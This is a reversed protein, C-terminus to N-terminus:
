ADEEDEEEESEEESEEEAEEKAKKKPKEPADKPILATGLWGLVLGAGGWAFYMWEPPSPVRLAVGKAKEITAEFIPQWKAVEDKGYVATTLAAGEDTPFVFLLRRYRLTAPNAGAVTLETVKKTSEGEIIGVRTGDARTRTEHRVDTWTVGNEALMAPMGEAIKALDAPEVSGRKNSVSLHLRPVVITEAPRMYKWAREGRERTETSGNVDTPGGATEVDLTFGEPPEYAFPQGAARDRPTTFRPGLIGFAVAIVVVAIRRM